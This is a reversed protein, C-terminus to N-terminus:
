LIIKQLPNQFLNALNDHFFNSELDMSLGLILNGQTLFDLDLNLIDEKLEFYLWLGEKFFQKYHFYKVSANNNMIKIWLTRREGMENDELMEDMSPFYNNFLEEENPLLLHISPFGKM